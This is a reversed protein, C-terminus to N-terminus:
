KSHMIYKFAYDIGISLGFLIATTILCVVLVVGTLRNAESRTPWQVQKLERKVDKLFGKFGRKQINPIAVSSPPDIEKKNEQSM